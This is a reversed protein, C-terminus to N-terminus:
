VCCQALRELLLYYWHPVAREFYKRWKHTYLVQFIIKYQKKLAKSDVCYNRCFSFFEFVEAPEELEQYKKLLLLIRFVRKYDQSPMGTLLLLQSYLAFRPNITRLQLESNELVLNCPETFELLERQAYPVRVAETVLLYDAIVDVAYKDTALRYLEVGEFYEKIRKEGFSSCSIKERKVVGTREMGLKEAVKRALEAPMHLDIDTAEVRTKLDELDLLLSVAIGGGLVTKAREKEDLVSFIRALLKLAQSGIRTEVHRFKTSLCFYYM